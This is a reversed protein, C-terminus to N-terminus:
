VNSKSIVRDNKNRSFDTYELYLLSESAKEQM